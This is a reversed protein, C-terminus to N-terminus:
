DLPHVGAKFSPDHDHVNADLEGVYNGDMRTRTGTFVRLITDACIRQSVM